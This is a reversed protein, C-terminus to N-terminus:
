DGTRRGAIVLMVAAFVCLFIAIAALPSFVLRALGGIVLGVGAALLVLRWDALNDLLPVRRMTEQVREDARELAGSLDEPVARAAERVTLKSEERSKQAM